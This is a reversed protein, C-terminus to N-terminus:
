VIRMTMGGDIVINEGTIFENKVLMCIAEAVDEPKGERHLPIRNDLNNKVQEPTLFDQFRTRIVGPSVCNVRINADSVEFALARTFQPLAGKVTAYALANKVGRLGAASSIYVIAGEGRQKIFPVAYHALLFAAHVHIDFAKYWIDKAGTLLGGPTAGGASHILIDIGGLQEITQNVVKECDEPQSLDAQLMICIGGKAKIEEAVAIDEINRAVLCLKAGESALQLATVAGIGHTGGTVLAIKNTLNM